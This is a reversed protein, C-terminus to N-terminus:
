LLYFVEDMKENERFTGMVAAANGRQIAMSLRQMLFSKTRPENTKLIMMKSLDNFFSMAEHSWPGMTEVSFPVFLYNQNILSEYKKVKRRAKDEAARGAERKSFNINSPAFTDTCTADWILTSGKSWPILTMGDVRKGDDRALGPPELKSPVDASSLARKLICNIETHLAHRGAKNKCKLGHHGNKEVRSGCVCIHPSCIDLGLRLGMIIRFANNDLLTGISKSPLAHLWIRAEQLLAGSEPKRVALIRAKDEDREFQFSNMLRNVVIEDWRKQLSPTEPIARDPQLSYWANISDEYDAIEEINLTPSHLMTSVLSSVANISSLFAPLATDRVRRIGTGGSRIPLTAMTWTDDKLLSNTITELTSKIENDMKEVFETHNWTPTTRLLFVLKPIAFCNKLIYFAIHYNDLERLREFLLKLESLKKNFVKDFANDTISTGLLTFENIICIGPSIQDFQSVIDQDVTSCFFLECKTPNIQLGIKACEEKITKFDRLVDEVAGGITGDDLYFIVFESVLANIIFQIASSFILPGYPDGQQAGNQSLLIFDGYFLLSPASYCQWLYPFIAPCHLKMENLFIDRDVENFANRFDIKVIVVRKHSNKKIFTRTAHAAAECGGKIGFGVQRPAFKSAMESRVSASALKSTLRRFANGIAIPRVGGDKKDLACLSAGYMIKIFDSQLKGFLMYNSLATISKTLRLGAEGTSSLTLDKLHQPLFGDIGSGSGNPFSKISFFVEKESVVLPDIHKDPPDPFSMPRSPTPHKAKLQEFTSVDQPSLTDSSSLIRVAGKIDGDSIKCEVRKSLSTPTKKKAPRTFILEPKMINRKVSTALSINNVRVPVRLSTYAFTLLNKWNSALNPSALCEEVCQALKNAALVRAARPM